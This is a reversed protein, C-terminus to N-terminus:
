RLTLFGGGPWRTLVDHDRSDAIPPLHFAAAMPTSSTSSHLDRKGKLVSLLGAL